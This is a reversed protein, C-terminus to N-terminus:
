FLTTKFISPTGGTGTLLMDLREHVYGQSHSSNAESMGIMPIRDHSEKITVAMFILKLMVIRNNNFGGGIAVIHFSHKHIIAAQDFNQEKFDWLGELEWLFSRMGYLLSEAM